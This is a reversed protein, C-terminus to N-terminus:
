FDELEVLCHMVHNNHDDAGVALLFNCRRVLSPLPVLKCYLSIYASVASDTKSVVDFESFM